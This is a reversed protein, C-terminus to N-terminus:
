ASAASAPRVAPQLQVELRAAGDAQAEPAACRIVERGVVGLQRQRAEELRALHDRGLLRRLPLAHSSSDAHVHDGGEELELEDRRRVRVLQEALVRQEQEIARDLGRAAGEGELLIRGRRRARERQAV